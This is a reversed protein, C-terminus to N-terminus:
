TGHEGKSDQAHTYLEQEALRVVQVPQLQMYKRVSSLAYFARHAYPAESTTRVVTLIYFIFYIFFYIFYLVYFARHAYPAERTTRVVTLHLYQKSSKIM